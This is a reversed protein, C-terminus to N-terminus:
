KKGAKHTRPQNGREATRGTARPAARRPEERRIEARSPKASIRNSSKSVTAKKSTM